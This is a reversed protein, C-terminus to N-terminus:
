LPPRRPPPPRKRDHRYDRWWAALLSPRWPRKPSQAAWVTYGYATAALAFTYPLATLLFPTHRIIAEVSGRAFWVFFVTAGLRATVSSAPNHAALRWASVIMGRATILALAANVIRLWDAPSM